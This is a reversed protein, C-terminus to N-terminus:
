DDIKEFDRWGTGDYWWYQMLHHSSCALFLSQFLTYHCRSLPSLPLLFTCRWKLFVM